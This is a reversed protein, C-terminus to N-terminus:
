DFKLYNLMYQKFTAYNKSPLYYVRFIDHSGNEKEKVSLTTRLPILEEGLTPYLRWALCPCARALRVAQARPGLRGHAGPRGNARMTRARVDPLEHRQPRARALLKAQAGGGGPRAGFFTQYRFSVNLILSPVAMNCRAAVSFLLVTLYAAKEEFLIAHVRTPKFDSSATADKGGSHLLSSRSRHQRVNWDLKSCWFCYCDGSWVGCSGHDGTTSACCHRGHAKTRLQERSEKM